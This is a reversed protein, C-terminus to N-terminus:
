FTKIREYIKTIRGRYRTTVKGSPNTSTASEISVVVRLFLLLYFILWQVSPNTSTASEILMVNVWASPYDIAGDEVSESLWTQYPLERLTALLDKRSVDGRLKTHPLMQLHDGSLGLTTEMKKYGGIRVCKQFPLM